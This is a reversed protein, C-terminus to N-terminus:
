RLENNDGYGTWKKIRGKFLFLLAAFFLALAAGWFELFKEWVIEWMDKAHEKVVKGVAVEVRVSLTAVGKPIATGTCDTSHYLHVDAGVDFEGTDVPILKFRVQSGQPDILMCMSEEPEITFGPAFPAVKASEGVAPLLETATTMDEPFDAEFEPIGIWVRLEGPPGPMKIVEDAGLKVKYQDTRSPTATSGGNLTSGSGVVPAGGNEPHGGNDPHGGNLMAGGNPPPPAMDPIENRSGLSPLLGGIPAGDRVIPAAGNDRGGPAGNNPQEIVPGRVPRVVLATREDAPGSSTEDGHDMAPPASTTSQTEEQGGSDQPSPPSCSVTFFIVALVTLLRWSTHQHIAM